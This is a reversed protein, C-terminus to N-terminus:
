LHSILTCLGVHFEIIMLYDLVPTQVPKCKAFQLVTCAFIHIEPQEEVLVRDRYRTVSYLCGM